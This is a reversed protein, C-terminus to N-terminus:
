SRRGQLVHRPHANDIGSFYRVLRVCKYFFVLKDNSLNEISHASIGDFCCACSCLGHPSPRNASLPVCCALAFDLAVLILEVLYCRCWRLSSFALGWFEPWVARCVQVLPYSKIEERAMIDRFVRHDQWVGPHRARGALQRSAPVQPASPALVPDKEQVAVCRFLVRRKAPLYALICAPLRCLRLCSRSPPGALQNPVFVSISSVLHLRPFPGPHDKQSGTQREHGVCKPTCWPLPTPTRACCERPEWDLM